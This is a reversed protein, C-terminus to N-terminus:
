QPLNAKRSRLALKRPERRFRSKSDLGFGGFACAYCAITIGNNLEIEDKTARVVLASLAPSRQLDKRIARFAIGAQQLQGDSGAPPCSTEKV